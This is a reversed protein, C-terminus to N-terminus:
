KKYSRNKWHYAKFFSGIAIYTNFFPYILFSIVFYSLMFKQNFFDATKYLILFDLIAKGMWLLLVTAVVNWDTIVLIVSSILAINTAFVVMATAISFWSTYATAKSAWRIRQAILENVSTVPNTHVSAKNSKLYHIKYQKAAMAKQLLFVDDGSAITHNGSFGNLNQFLSKKYALNAGNCLFAQQLGFAGITTGQLSMFDLTQFAKFWGPYAKYSVPAVVFDSNNLIIFKNFCQLWFKPLVCDADTTIIWEFNALNIASSIADKKPSASERKNNIISFTILTNVLSNQIIQKSNDTSEDDIFILEFSGFPYEILQISQLLQPLNDAENRFPIVISFKANPTEPKLHFIPVKEFGILLAVILIAYLILIFILLASM